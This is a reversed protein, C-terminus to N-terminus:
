EALLWDVLEQVGAGREGSTVRHAAAKLAPIANAVAVGLGSATLLDQDNEADGIAAVRNATLGLEALAVALGTAKNVGAPLVMVARKNLIVQASLALEQITQEVVPGHPEWTAVVVQGQRLPSVQRAKLREVFQPPFPEVLPRSEGTAPTHLVAGNEGVVRQFLHLHPCIVQLDGLERGTVLLLTGGSQRYRHLASLTQPDVVGDTALTGDYDTAIACYKM